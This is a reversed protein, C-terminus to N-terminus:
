SLTLAEAVARNVVEGSMTNIGAALAPDNACAEKM